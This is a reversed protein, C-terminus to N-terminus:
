DFRYTDAQYDKLATDVVHKIVRKTKRIEDLTIKDKNNIRDYVEEASYSLYEKIRKVCQRVFRQVISLKMISDAEGPTLWGLPPRWDCDFGRFGRNEFNEDFLSLSIGYRRGNYVFNMKCLPKIKEWDKWQSWKFPFKPNPWCYYQGSNGKVGNDGFAHIIKRGTSSYDRKGDGTTDMNALDERKGPQNVQPGDAEDVSGAKPAPYEEDFGGVKMQKAKVAEFMEAFGPDSLPWQAALSDQMKRYFESKFFQQMQDPGLRCIRGDYRFRSDWAKAESDLFIEVIFDDSMKVIIDVAKEPFTKPNYPKEEGRSNPLTQGYMYAAIKARSLFEDTVDFSACEFEDRPPKAEFKEMEGERAAGPQQTNEKVVSNVKRSRAMELVKEADAPGLFSPLFREYGDLGPGLARIDASSMGNEARYATKVPDAVSVDDRGALKQAIWGYKPGDKDSVGVVVRAKTLGSALRLVDKAPSPDESVRIEVNKLGSARLFVELIARSVEPPVGEDRRRSAKPSSVVVVVSDALGAYHSIMDWHGAHPPSFSGPVFAVVKRM